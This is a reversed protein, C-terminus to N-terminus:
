CLFTVTGGKQPFPASGEEDDDSFIVGGEKQPTSRKRMVEPDEERLRLRLQRAGSGLLVGGGGAVSAVQHIPEDLSGTPLRVTRSRRGLLLGGDSEAGREGDFILLSGGAQPDAAVLIHSEADGGAAAKTTNSPSPFLQEVVARPVWDFSFSQQTAARRSLSAVPGTSCRRVDWEELRGGRRGVMVTHSDTPHDKLAVIPGGGGGGQQLQKAPYTLCCALGNRRPDWLETPAARQFYSVALWRSQVSFLRCVTTGCNGNALPSKYSRVVGDSGERLLDFERVHATDTGETSYGGFVTSVATSSSLPKSWLVCRPSVVEDMGNRAVYNARLAAGEGRRM